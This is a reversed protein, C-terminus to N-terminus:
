DNSWGPNQQGKLGPNTTMDRSPIAWVFKFDTVPKSLAPANLITAVVNANQPDKRSLGEKWRKLDDIRNGEGILERIRENKIEAKLADGSIGTLASLGRAVRLTNLASLAESDKNDWALAEAKILHTEAIRFVKPKHQYNSISGSYLVPNGPYKNLLFLEYDSAESSFRVPLKAFYVSKRFDNDDYLDIVWQEPVFDPVFMKLTANYGLFVNNANGLENPTSAFLMLISEDAADIAWINLLADNTTVLPYTNSNILTNAATVADSYRHMDLYVRAELAPICDKTLRISGPSGETNILAKAEKLDNLIQTYVQEITSRGPREDLNFQLLLPVGLESAATAPEYDKAYRKVLKEYYYARFFYAEGKLGALSAKEADDKAVIKDINDLFNNVNSLAGYYGSWIDRIDYDDDTFSWTYVSGRRNGYDVTAHYLDGQIDASISYIGYTRGRLQAYLANNLTKADNLTKFAQTQEISNFPYRDLDCSYYFLSLCACILFGTNKIIKKM